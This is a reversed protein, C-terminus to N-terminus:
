DWRGFVDNAVLQAVRFFPTSMDTSVHYSL